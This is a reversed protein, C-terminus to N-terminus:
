NVRIQARRSGMLNALAGLTAVFARVDGGECLIIAQTLSQASSAQRIAQLSAMFQREDGTLVQCCDPCQPNSFHFVTSRAYRMAQVAALTAYAVEPGGQRQFHDAAIVMAPLWGHGEPYAFTQFYHRAITLIVMEDADLGSEALSRKQADPQSHCDRRSHDSKLGKDM